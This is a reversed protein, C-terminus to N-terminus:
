HPYTRGGVVGVFVDITTGTSRMGSTLNCNSAPILLQGEQAAWSPDTKDNKFYNRSERDVDQTTAKTQKPGSTMENLWNLVRLNTRKQKFSQQQEDDFDVEPKSRDDIWEKDQDDVINIDQSLTIEELGM